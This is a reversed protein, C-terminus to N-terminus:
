PQVRLLLKGMHTDSEMRHHALAAQELPFTDTVDIRIQGTMLLDIVRRATAALHTPRVRSLNTISYGMVGKNGALLTQPALPVDPNGSANGFHVLRGFPALLSLSQGRTPEGAADLAVDVGQGDTVSRVAEVFGDRLFVHDYGFSHAYAIKRASGVTGLVLGAGLSRALQGAVSGVGGAAAHILVTEGAQLRAVHVLVDYATLMVAPFAAAATMDLQGHPNDLPFTLEAQALVLEAYGGNKVFAAVRQGERLGEVGEGLEAIYGAVELGPVYPFQDAHYGRQRDMIDAYNVGAYAVRISVQQRGPHPDPMESLTLVDPGGVMPIVIARM